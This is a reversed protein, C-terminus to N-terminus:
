RRRRLARFVPLRTAPMPRMRPQAKGSSTVSAIAVTVTCISSVIAPSYATNNWAPLHPGPTGPAPWRRASRSPAPTCSRCSARPSLVRDRQVQRGLGSQLSGRGRAGDRDGPQSAIRKDVAKVQTLGRRLNHAFRDDQAPHLYPVLRTLRPLRDVHMQLPRQCRLAQHNHIRLGHRLPWWLPTTGVM